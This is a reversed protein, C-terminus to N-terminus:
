WILSPSIILRASAAILVVAWAAPVLVVIHLLATLARGISFADAFADVDVPHLLGIILLALLCAVVIVIDTPHRLRATSPPRAFFTWITPASAPDVAHWTPSTRRMHRRLTAYPVTGPDGLVEGPTLQPRGARNCPHCLSWGQLHRSNM